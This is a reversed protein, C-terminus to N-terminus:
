AGGTKHQERFKALQRDVNIMETRINLLAKEIDTVENPTIEGDSAAVILAQTLDAHSHSITSVKNLLKQACPLEDDSTDNIVLRFGQSEAMARTIIPEGCDMDLDLAVDIPMFTGANDESRSQYKSLHSNNVRTISEASSVGGCCEIVRRSVTKLFARTADSTKRIKM